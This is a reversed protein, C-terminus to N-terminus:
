GCVVQLGRTELHFLRPRMAPELLRHRAEGDRNELGAVQGHLPVPCYKNKLVLLTKPSAKQWGKPIGASPGRSSM